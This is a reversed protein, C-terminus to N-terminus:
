IENNFRRLSDSIRNSLPEFAENFRYRLIYSAGCITNNVIERVKRKEDENSTFYLGNIRCYEDIIEDNTKM